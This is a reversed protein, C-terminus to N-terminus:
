LPAGVNIMLKLAAKYANVTGGTVSLSDFAVPTATGPQKVTLGDYKNSTSLIAEKIESVRAQPFKSLLLAAVGAVEPSAMSTGQYTAYKNDPITSVIGVGPAFVDVATKGYNSFTAPLTEDRNKDSAGVEIWNSAESALGKDNTIKRNPFNNDQADTNKGDNGAAHVLLVNKSEAYKVASDVYAKGPSYDKGFSMNIVKAGHDVAFRIANGVDKDREDGNPVARVSMIKVNVAQGKIGFGNNRVAAIIGSVHTGHADYVKGNPDRGSVDTNGYGKEEFNTPDDGVIASSNFDINFQYQAGISLEEVADEVYASDVGRPILQLVLAKAKVVTPDTSEIANVAAVTDEKLGADKLVKYAAQYGLYRTLTGQNADRRAVFDASVKDFYKQDEASLPGAEAKKKMRAYERTVELTQGSINVGAKSGLFNWGFVDDIYGDGDDDVGPKGYLEAENVYVHGKLDPHTIDVGSDIVAVIIENAKDRPIKVNKYLLGTSTGQIKDAIPDKQSWLNAEEKTPKKMALAEGKANKANLTAEFEAKSMSLLSDFKANLAARESASIQPSTRKAAYATAAVVTTVSLALARTLLLKSNM